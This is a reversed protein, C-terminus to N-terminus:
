DHVDQLSALLVSSPSQIVISRKWRCFFVTRLLIVDAEEQLLAPGCSHGFSALCTFFMPLQIIKFYTFPKDLKTSCGSGHFLLLLLKNM